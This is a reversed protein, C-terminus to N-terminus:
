APQGGIESWSPRSRTACARRGGRRHPHPRRRPVRAAAGPEQPGRRAARGRLPRLGPGLAAARRRGRPGRRPRRDATVEAPVVVALDQHVAPFTTVDEYIEEGVTAAGLLAATDIEFGVAAELDWSAASWRTSRASGAPRRRRRDLGRGRPGPAPVAGAGGRLRARRGLQGALAELVGKLAFFDAPEGGGRWSKEVLPGVALAGLRHPEAFPAAQEGAFVGALPCRGPRSPRRRSDLYVQGSEFLAVADADRALNRAAVDLLSGLLTTRMASQDESLPNALLVPTPARTTPPSGCGGPRAPTPSAGASSRTSASTACPTRPGAGCSSSAASGASRARGGGAADDAPARRLRPGPRGGRDPRGRPHRRLPPRAPVTSRRPRRRRGRRRLRAAGPLRGPRGARDADGAPGRGAAAACGIRPAARSRPPSTSRGRCWSPAASSSWCGRPSGSRGCASSRTCSSRSARRLGGLAARAPALHPPHQDRELQRGRAPGPDDGGSVESVQGGM